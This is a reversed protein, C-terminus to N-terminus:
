ATARSAPTHADSMRMPVTAFTRESLGCADDRIEQYIELARSAPLEVDDFCLPQDPEVDRLIRANEMLCLPVHDPRQRIYVCEGRVDFGGQGRPLVEGVKLPRKALAAVGVRPRSSNNLLERDGAVVNRLTKVAELYCLHYSRLLVFAEGEKTAAKAWPTWGPYARAEPSDILMYVGAPAGPCLLYDAVPKGLRRAERAFVDSDRLDQGLPALLGERIIEAGLGNAVFAQEIQVKSGDTFSVIQDVSNGQKDAWYQMDALTPTHNLFGKINLYALPELGMALAERHLSALCGPQDGEAETIYTRAAFYSGTTVQLESDMTVIPLGALMVQELVATAHVVDGSAEFIIDSHEILENVSRTLLEPRVNQVGALPRRTLVRGIQLDPCAEIMRATGGAIFGTGIIGVRKM